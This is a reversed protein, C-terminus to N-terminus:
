HLGIGLVFAEQLILNHFFALIALIQVACSM